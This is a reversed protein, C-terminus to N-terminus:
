DKIRLVKGPVGAVVAREPVARTVLTAAGVVAHGGIEPVKGSITTSGLGLFAYEGLTTGGGLLGFGAVFSHDLMTSGHALLTGLSVVCDDGVRASASVIAGAHICCGRGVTAYRSVTATPHVLTPVEGGRETIRRYLDARVYNDGASIAFRRGTLDQQWLEDNCGVIRHGYYAEGERGPLYHYLGAVRYGASEALDVIVITNAGVGLVYIDKTEM